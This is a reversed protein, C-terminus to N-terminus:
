LRGALEPYSCLYRTPPHIYRAQRVAEPISERSTLRVTGDAVKLTLEREGWGLVKGPELNATVAGEHPQGRDAATIRLVQDNVILCAGPYPPAFCRVASLVCAVSLRPDILSDHPTRKRWYNAQAQDQVAGPAAPDAQLLGHLAVTGAFAINNVRAVLTAIDDDAGVSFPEQHLVTGTDVGQDMRFFTLKSQPIGLAILWHLPHRGRNRPLETPHTGITCFKPIGLVEAGIIRPWSSFIYDAQLGKLLAVSEPANLDSIEHYPVDHAAAFAGVQAPNDPLEHRPLSVLAAIQAGCQLLASSCSLTFDSTGLVIFRMPARKAPLTAANTM